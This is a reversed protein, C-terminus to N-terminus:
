HMIYIQVQAHSSNEVDVTSSCRLGHIDMDEISEERTGEEERREGKRSRRKADGEPREREERM